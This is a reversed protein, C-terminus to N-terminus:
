SKFFIPRFIKRIRTPFLIQIGVSMILVYSFYFVKEFTKFVSKNKFLVRIKIKTINWNEVFLVHKNLGLSDISETKNTLSEDLYGFSFRTSLNIWLVYDFPSEMFPGGIEILSCRKIVGCSMHIFNEMIMKKLVLVQPVIRKEMLWKPKEIKIREGNKTEVILNDWTVSFEDSSSFLHIHKLLKDPDWYDDSDLFAVYEGRSLNFGKVRAGYDGKRDGQYLFVNKKDNLFKAIEEFKERDSDDVIIIEWNKYTQRFVSIVAKYLSNTRNRNPIVVSVLPLKGDDIIM